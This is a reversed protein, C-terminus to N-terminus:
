QTRSTKLEGWTTTAKGAAGIHGKLRHGRTLTQRNGDLSVDEIQYYYVINPKATTDTYTYSQKESTTGAGPVMTPNVVVFQGNRQQSRKIFFGANNLESQTEWVITVQGTVRDRAASFKSLEVPLAGGADYGPTGMDDQDGYYTGVYAGGQGTSSALVWGAADTGMIEGAAGMERRIISSRGEESMPLEWGGVLNGVVDGRDAVGGALPLPPELSIRFAMDSLLMYTMSAPKVQASADVIRNSDLMGANGDDKTRAAVGSNRNTTKSVILVSQGSDLTVGDLKIGLAPTVEADAPDNDIGVVWGDLSVESVASSTIEIWQPLRGDNSAVMIETISLDSATAVPAKAAEAAQTEEAATAEEAAEAARQKSDDYNNDAGPTGIRGATSFNATPLESMAWSLEATGDTGGEVRSMSVVDDIERDLIQIDEKTGQAEVAVGTKVVPDSSSVGSKGPVEWYDGTIPDSANSVMDIVTGTSFSTTTGYVIMWEQKDISIDAGTTNHLEIWQGETYARDDLGRDYGWMIESIIVSGAAIVASSAGAYGTDAVAEADNDAIDQYVLKITAGNRFYNALDNGPYPPDFKEVTNYLAEGARFIVDDKKKNANAGLIGAQAYSGSTLVLYGNAPIVLKEPVFKEHPLKADASAKFIDTEPDTSVRVSLVERGNQARVDRVFMAPGAFTDALLQAETLAEYMNPDPLVRDNFRKVSVVVNGTIGPDPTITVRYLHYMNDRGTPEPFTTNETAATPIEVVDAAQYRLGPFNAESLGGAGPGVPLLAVPDSASGNRVMIHDMTFEAPEETLVIRIDFAGTATAAIGSFTEVRSIGVVGPAGTSANGDHGVAMATNSGTVKAYQADGEDMEVLDVRLLHPGDSHAIDAKDDTLFDQRIALSADSVAAHKMQFLLTHIEFAGGRLADYANQLATNKIILLFQQGPLEGPDRVPVLRPTRFALIALDDASNDTTGDVGTKGDPGLLGLVGLSRGLDDYAEVIFDDLGLAGGSTTVNDNIVDHLQM